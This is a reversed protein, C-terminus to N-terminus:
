SVASDFCVYQERDWCPSSANGASPVAAAAPFLDARAVILVCQLEKKADICLM